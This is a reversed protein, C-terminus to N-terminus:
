LSLLFPIFRPPPISSFRKWSHALQRRLEHRAEERKRERERKPRERSGMTKSQGTERRRMTEGPKQRDWKERLIRKRKPQQEERRNKGRTRERHAKEGRPSNQKIEGEVDWPRPSTLTWEGGRGEERGVLFHKTSEGCQVIATFPVGGLKTTSYLKM